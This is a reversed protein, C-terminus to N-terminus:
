LLRSLYRRGQYRHKLWVFLKAGGPVPLYLGIMIVLFPLWNGGGRMVYLDLRLMVEQLKCFVCIFQRWFIVAAGTLAATM